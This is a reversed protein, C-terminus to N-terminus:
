PERSGGNKKPLSFYHHPGGEGRGDGGPLPLITQRRRSFEPAPIPRVTLRLGLAASRNNGRGPSLALTLVSTGVRESKLRVGPKERSHAFGKAETQM